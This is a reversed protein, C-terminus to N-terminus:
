SAGMKTEAIDDAVAAAALPHIQRCVDPNRPKGPHPAPDDHSATVRPRHDFAPDIGTDKSPAM